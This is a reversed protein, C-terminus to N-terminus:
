TPALQVIAASQPPLEVTTAADLHVLRDTAYRLEAARVNLTRPQAGFNALVAFAGRHVVLWREHDDFDIEVHNLAPDALDPTERRLQLLTRYTQLIEAHAPEVAEDWRLKASAFTTPDQPDAVHSLDWGHRAFEERRGEAGAEGLEPEPHSTFCPWRASAAWEEGRWLRPTFPSTLLLVAGVKLL